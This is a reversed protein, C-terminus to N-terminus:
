QNKGLNFNSNWTLEQTEIPSGSLEVEIGKNEILGANITASAYGSTGSIDLPIIQNKNMKEYYTVSLSVRGFFNLDIGGEYSHSFSPEINPNNLNSPVSLTNTGGYVTGIDYALETQYPSLDSGAQAYSLRLKGYSLPQWDIMESFVFSGSVSPYWYSNNDKPLTSSKDNRISVDVFYTDDYGMS